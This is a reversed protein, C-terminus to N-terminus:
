NSHPNVLAHIAAAVQAPSTHGTDIRLDADPLPETSDWATLREALDGPDRRRLREIAIDRDSWLAVTFWQVRAAQRIAEIAALQGLHLVPIHTFLATSLAQRDVAYQAGYRENQWIIEGAVGLDVLTATDIMRYGAHKGPGVKIRPFHRYRTDLSQLAITVTDKGSAPPGYLIVGPM